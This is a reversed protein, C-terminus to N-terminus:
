PGLRLTETASSINGNRGSIFAIGLRLISCALTLSGLNERAHAALVEDIESGYVRGDVGAVHAFVVTYYDSQAGPPV